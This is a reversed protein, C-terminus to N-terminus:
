TALTLTALEFRTERELRGRCILAGLRFGRRRQRKCPSRRAARYDPPALLWHDAPLERLSRERRIERAEAPKPERGRSRGATSKRSRDGAPRRAEPIRPLWRSEQGEGRVVPQIMGKRSDA